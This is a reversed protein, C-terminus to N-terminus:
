PNGQYFVERYKKPTTGTATKFSDIFASQSSFGLAIAIDLYSLDSYRLLNQATDIKAM